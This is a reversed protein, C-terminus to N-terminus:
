PRSEPDRYRWAVLQVPKRQNVADSLDIRVTLKHVDKSDKEPLITVALTAKPIMQCFMASMQINAQKDPTVENWPRSMLDDMVNAAELSAASRLDLIRYQKAAVTMLKAIGAMAAMALLMAILLESFTTGHRPRPRNQYIMTM